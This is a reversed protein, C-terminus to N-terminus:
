CQGDWLAWHDWPALTGVVLFELAVWSVSSFSPGHLTTPPVPGTLGLAPRASLDDTRLAFVWDHVNAAWCKTAVLSSLRSPGNWASVPLRHKLNTRGAFALCSKWAWSWYFKLPLWPEFLHLFLWSCALGGRRAEGLSGSGVSLGVHRCPPIGTHPLSCPGSSLHWPHPVCLASM